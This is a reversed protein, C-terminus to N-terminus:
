SWVPMGWAPPTQDRLGERTGGNALYISTFFDIYPEYKARLAEAEKLRVQYNNNDRRHADDTAFHTIRAGPISAIGKRAYLTRFAISNDSGYMEFDEDFWGIENGFERRLIGFNAYPLGMYANVIYNSQNPPERYAICGLGIQAHDQMYAIATAACEDELVCDDNVFMVFDGDAERLARNYGKTYGLRPREPLIRIIGRASDLRVPMDSADAVIFQWDVKQREISTLLRRLDDLRNRTGTVISLLAM